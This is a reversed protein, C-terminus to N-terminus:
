PFPPLDHLHEFEALLYPIWPQRLAGEADTDVAM